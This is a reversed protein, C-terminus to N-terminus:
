SSQPACPRLSRRAALVMVAGAIGAAAAITNALGFQDASLGILPPGVLYSLYGVATVAATAAGVEGAATHGAESIVTPFLPGLGAGALAIAVLFLIPEPQAAGGVLALGALASGGAALARAGIAAALRDGLTRSVAMALNFVVVASAGLTAGAGLDRAVLLASWDTVTGELFLAGIALLLLLVPPLARRTALAGDPKPSVTSDQPETGPLRPSCIAMILLLVVSVAAFHVLIPAQLTAALAGGASGALVGVSYGGHLRSLIRRPALVREHHVGATNMAVDLAGSAAGLVILAGTLQALNGALAILPLCAAFAVGSLRCVWAAPVRRLARGTLLLTPVSGAAIGFLATGLEGDTLALSNAVTPIRPAWSSLVAGNVFFIMWLSSTATIRASVGVGM